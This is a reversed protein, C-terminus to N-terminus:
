DVFERLAGRVSKPLAPTGDSTLTRNLLKRGGETARCSKAIFQITRVDADRLIATLSGNNRVLLKIAGRRLRECRDWSWWMGATPLHRELLDWSRSDLRDDALASHLLLFNQELLPLLKPSDVNFVLSVLFARLGLFNQNGAEKILRRNIDIWIEPLYDPSAKANPDLHAIASAIAILPADRHRRLWDLSAEPHQELARRWAPGLDEWSRGDNSFSDLVADITVAPALDVLRASRSDVNADIMASIIERLTTEDPNSAVVADILEGHTSKLSRWLEASGALSPRRRVMGYLLQRNNPLVSVIETPQATDIIGALVAEGFGNLEGSALAAALQISEQDGEKRLSEVIQPVTKELGDPLSESIRGLTLLISAKTAEPFAMDRLLHPNDIVFSVLSGDGSGRAREVIQAIFQHFGINGSTARNHVSYIEALRHFSWRDADVLPARAKLFSSLGTRGRQLLDLTIDEAWEPAAAVEHTVSISDIVSMEPMDRKLQRLSSHPAIQLDFYNGNVKRAALAGTCFSFRRRLDPWQQLWIACAATDFQQAERALIVVPQKGDSYLARIILSLLGPEITLNEELSTGTEIAAKHKYGDFGGKDNPRRFASLIQSVDSINKMETAQFLLTQTWVCGPRALEPAYWTRAIAYLGSNALSYATLYSDFGPVMSPGSMDSMLLAIRRADSPLEASCALLKHGESYGHLMQDVLFRKM